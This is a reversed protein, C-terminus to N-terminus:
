SFLLGASACTICPTASPVKRACSVVWSTEYLLYSAIHSSTCCTCTLFLCRLWQCAWAGYMNSQMITCITFLADSDHALGLERRCQTCSQRVKAASYNAQGANGVQGVVSAINIIRGRKKKGM